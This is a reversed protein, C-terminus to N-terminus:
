LTTGNDGMRYKCYVDRQMISSYHLLILINLVLLKMWSCMINVYRSTNYRKLLKQHSKQHM